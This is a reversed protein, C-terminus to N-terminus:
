LHMKFLSNIIKLQMIFFLISFVPFCQPRISITSETNPSMHGINKNSIFKGLIKNVFAKDEIHELQWCPSSDSPTSVVIVYPLQQGDGGLIRGKKM